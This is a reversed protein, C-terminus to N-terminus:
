KRCVTAFFQDGSSLVIRESTIGASCDGLPPPGGGYACNVEFTVKEDIYQM